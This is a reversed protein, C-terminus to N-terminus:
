NANVSRASATPLNRRYDGRDHNGLPHRRRSGSECLCDNCNWNRERNDHTMRECRRLFSDIRSNAESEIIKALAKGAPAGYNHRKRQKNTPQFNPVGTLKRRHCGIPIERQLKGDTKSPV